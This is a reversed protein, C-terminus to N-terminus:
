EHLLKKTVEKKEPTDVPKIPLIVPEKKEIYVIKPKEDGYYFKGWPIFFCTSIVVSIMLIIFEHSKRIDVWKKRMIMDYVIKILGYLTGVYSIYLIINGM